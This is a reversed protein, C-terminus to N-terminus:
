KKEKVHLIDLVEVSAGAIDLLADWTANTKRM